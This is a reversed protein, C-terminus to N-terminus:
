ASELQKLKRKILRIEKELGYLLADSITISSFNGKTNFIEKPSIPDSIDVIIYYFKARNPNYEVKVILGFKERIIDIATLLSVESLGYLKEFFSVVDDELIRDM